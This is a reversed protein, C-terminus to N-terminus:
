QELREENPAPPTSDDTKITQAVKTSLYGTIEPTGVLCKGETTYMFPVGVSRPDIGCSRARKSLEVANAPNQYIEKRIVTLNEDIRNEEMWEITDHCHPCTTGWYFIDDQVENTVDAIKEPRDKNKSSGWVVIGLLLAIIGLMTITTITQKKM